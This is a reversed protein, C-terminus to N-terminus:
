RRGPDAEPGSEGEPDAGPDRIRNRGEQKARYLWYDAENILAELTPQGQLAAIGFSARVSIEGDPGTVTRHVLGKQIRSAITRAEALGAGPLVMVFEEGGWRAALDGRRCVSQLVRAAEILVRDGTAHGHLDNIRKFHDLDLVIVALEAGSRQSMNVLGDGQEVVARRNLLGTLADVRALAEARQRAYDKERVRYAVALALLTAEILLGFEVARFGAIHFPVWGWVTLTTTLTGLVGSVVAIMFYHAATLRRWLAFGGLLFLIGSFLLAVTFALYAAASQWQLLVLLAMLLLAALSGLQFGRALRPMHRPLDFFTSAFRLGTVAFLVMSVLIIYNQFRTHGSWLWVYGHGTYALNMLLFCALYVAYDRHSGQRLGLYLMFNYLLLAFLFGYVFGYSYRNAIIRAESTEPKLLRIPMLLPDPTSARLYLVTEGPAFAHPFRYGLGPEPPTRDAAGDGASERAVVKGDHVAYFDLEDIWTAGAVVVRESPVGNHNHVPLRFWVPSTGIGFSRAPDGGGNFSGRAARARVAALELPQGREILYGPRGSLHTDGDPRLEIRQARDQDHSFAWVSALGLALLVMLWPM